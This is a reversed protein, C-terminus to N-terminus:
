GGISANKGFGPSDLPAVVGAQCFGAGHRAASDASFRLGAAAERSRRALADLDLCAAEIYDRAISRLDHSLEFLQHDYFPGCEPRALLEICRRNMRVIRSATPSCPPFALHMHVMGAGSQGNIAEITM